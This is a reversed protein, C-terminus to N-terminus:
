FIDAESVQLKNLSDSIEHAQLIFNRLRVLGM